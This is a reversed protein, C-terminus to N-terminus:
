LRKKLQNQQTYDTYFTTNCTNNYMLNSHVNKIGTLVAVWQHVKM